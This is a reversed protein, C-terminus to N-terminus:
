GANSQALPFFIRFASGKGPVSEVAVVGQNTRVIGLVVALGLGRGQFKTSFFPDFIQGMDKEAIGCGTDMVELCAYSVGQPRWDVPNRKEAPIEELSAARVRLHIAGRKKGIAESANSVLSRLMEQIQKENAIIFPGTSPLDTELAIDQHLSIRFAPWIAQCAHSLDVPKREVLSKGLYTLM